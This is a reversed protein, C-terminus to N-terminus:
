KVEINLSSQETNARVYRVPKSLKMITNSDVGRKLWSNLQTKSLDLQEAIEDATLPKVLLSDLIEAVAHYLAEAPTEHTSEKPSESEKKESFPAPAVETPASEVPADFLNLTEVKETTKVVRKASLQELTEILSVDSRTPWEIGGIDLLKRNGEPVSNDIRVFVPRGNERQLEEKAGAWTGGKNYDSSVVLGYDALAYILKNRAMANGVTFRANPHFPSVLVLQGKAIAQRYEKSVSQKLLSDAVIGISFGGSQLATTMAIQDVGRAGGSVVMLQNRACLSAIQKTFQEGHSDLNRSGVMAIGGGNLLSVEGSGFLLPPSKEKLQAKFRKPYEPDSRSIVWIGNRQWEEVAFSLQMGRGLLESIRDLPLNSGEAAMAAVDPSLLDSPRKGESVLWRVLKTYETQTLPKESGGKGFYACLLLIAKTDNTLKWNM